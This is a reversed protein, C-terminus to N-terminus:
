GCNVDEYLFTKDKRVYAAKALPVLLRHIVDKKLTREGPLNLKPNKSIKSNM